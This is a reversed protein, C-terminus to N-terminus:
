GRGQKKDDGTSSSEQGNPTELEVAPEAVSGTAPVVGTTSAPRNFFVRAISAGKLHFLVSSFHELLRLHQWM